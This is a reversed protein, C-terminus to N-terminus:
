IHATLLYCAVIIYLIKRRTHYKVCEVGIYPTNSIKPISQAICVQGFRGIARCIVIGKDINIVNKM